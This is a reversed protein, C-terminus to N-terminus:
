PESSKHVGGTAFSQCVCFHCHIKSIAAAVKVDFELRPNLTSMTLTLFSQQTYFTEKLTIVYVYPPRSDDFTLTTKLKSTM